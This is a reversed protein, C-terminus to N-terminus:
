LIGPAKALNAKPIATAFTGRTKARDMAFDAWASVFGTATDVTPASLSVRLRRNRGASVIRAWLDLDDVPPDAPPSDLNALLPAFAFLQHSSTEVIIEDSGGAPLDALGAALGALAM